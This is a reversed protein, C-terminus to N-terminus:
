SREQGTYNSKLQDPIKVSFKRRNVSLLNALGRKTKVAPPCTEQSHYLQWLALATKEFQLPELADFTLKGFELAVTMEAFKRQPIQECLLVSVKANSAVYALLEVSRLNGIAHFRDAKKVVVPPHLAIYEYINKSPMSSIEKVRYRRDMLLNKMAVPLEQALLISDARVRRYRLYNQDM